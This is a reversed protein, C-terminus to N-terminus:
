QPIWILVIVGLYLMLRQPILKMSSRTYSPDKDDGRDEKNESRPVDPMNSVLLCEKKTQYRPRSSVEFFLHMQRRREETVAEQRAIADVFHRLEESRRGNGHVARVMKVRARAGWGDQAAGTNGRDMRSGGEAWEERIGWGSDRRRSSETADSAVRTSPVGWGGMPGHSEAWDLANSEWAGSAAWDDRYPQRWGSEGYDRARESPTVKGGGLMGLVENTTRWGGDGEMKELFEELRLVEGKEAADIGRQWFPVLDFVHDVHAHMEWQRLGESTLPPHDIKDWCTEDVATQPHNGPIRTGDAGNANRDNEVASPEHYTREHNLAATLSPLFPQGRDITPYLNCVWGQGPGAM